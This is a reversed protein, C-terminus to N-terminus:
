LPAKVSIARARCSQRMIQPCAVFDRLDASMCLRIEQFIERPCSIAAMGPRLGPNVDRFKRLIEEPEFRAEAQLALLDPPLNVGAKARRVHDFWVSPAVGSCGGHKRWQYRALGESPFLDRAGDLIARPIPRQGAPCDIASQAEAQPWLGHVVFRQRAGSACQDRGKDQGELACFGPSWSLAFVYFDFAASQARAQSQPVLWLGLALASLIYAKIIARM